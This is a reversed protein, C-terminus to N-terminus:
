AKTIRGSGSVSEKIKKPEQIYKVSGSGSVSADLVDKTNTIIRGSGSVDALTTTAVLDQADIYGSGSVENETKSANGSLNIHGSGSVSANLHTAEIKLNINGSGSQTAEFRNAKLTNQSTISGSGSMSVANISSVPVSVEIKHNYSLNSNEKMRIKLQTGKTEVVVYDLINEEGKLQIDGENGNTLTVKFSGSVSISEYDATKRQETVIKENGKVSTRNWWNQAYFPLIIFLATIQILKKM